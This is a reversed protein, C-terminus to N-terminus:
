KPEISVDIASTVDRIQLTSPATQQVRYLDAVHQEIHDNRKCQFVHTVELMPGRVAM